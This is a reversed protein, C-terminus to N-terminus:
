TMYMLYNKKKNKHFNSKKNEEVDSYINNGSM